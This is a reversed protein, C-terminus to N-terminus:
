LVTLTLEFWGGSGATNYDIQYTNMGVAFSSGNPKGSFVGGNWSGIYTIITWVGGTSLVTSGLDTVDLVASAAINLDVTVDVLDCFGLDSDIQVSFTSSADFSLTGTINLDGTAADGPSFTGGLISVDGLAGTNGTLTGGSNVITDGSITGNVELAGSNVTTIGTYTCANGITLKGSGNMTVAGAGSIVGSLVQDLSSAYDLESGSSTLIIAGSYSGGGLQGVDTISLISDAVTTSGTYTNDLTFEVNGGGSVVFNGTGSIVPFEPYGGGQSVDDSRNIELTANNVVEGSNAISGATGGDGLQLVGASITTTSAYTNVGLLILKGTGVKTLMGGSASLVGSYTTSANTYGVSLNVWLVDDTILTVNASGSLGGLVPATIGTAFNLTGTNLNVTSSQVANNHGLRLIGASVLTVGAYTNVADLSLKGVGTKTLGGTGQNMVASITFTNSVNDINIPITYTSVFNVDHTGFNNLSTGTIKIGGGLFYIDNSADGLNASASVSLTSTDAIITQCTYTNTGTLTLTNPGLVTVGDTLVTSVTINGSTTNYTITKCLSPSFACRMVETAGNYFVLCICEELNGGLITVTSLAAINFTYDPTGPTGEPCEDFYVDLKTMVAPTSSDICSLLDSHITNDFGVILDNGSASKTVHQCCTRPLCPECIECPLYQTPDSGSAEAAKCISNLRSM